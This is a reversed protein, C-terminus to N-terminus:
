DRSGCGTCGLDSCPSFGRAAHQAGRKRCYVQPESDIVEDDRHEASAQVAPRGTGAPHRGGAVGVLRALGAQRREATGDIEALGDPYPSSLITSMIM